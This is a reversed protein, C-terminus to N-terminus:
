NGPLPFPTPNGPGLLFFLSAPFPSPKEAPKATPPLCCGHLIKPLQFRARGGTSQLFPSASLTLAPFGEDLM